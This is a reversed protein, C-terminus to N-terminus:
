VQIAANDGSLCCIKVEGGCFRRVLGATEEAARLGDEVSVPPLADVNIAVRRTSEEIRSRDGNKWCWARCFVDKSGTDYLIIEGPNPREASEPSGLPVYVEEGGAFGLRVDGIVKALDDGGAPLIYKMSVVNFICVLTNVYPMDKGGRVRKVLNAISPPCKNPNVGFSEFASRWSAIRPHAKVDALSDDSRLASEAERLMLELEPKVGANDVGEAVLLHRTYGPFATFIEPVIEIKLDM